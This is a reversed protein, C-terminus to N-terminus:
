PSCWLMDQPLCGSDGEKSTPLPPVECAFLHVMEWCWQQICAQLHLAPWDLKAALKLFATLLEEEHHGRNHLHMFFASVCQSFDEVHSNQLWFHYLMGFILGKTMSPSHASFAPIYLHLNMSKEFTCAEVQGGVITLTLDLFNVKTQPGLSTWQLQWGEYGFSNFDQKLREFRGPCQHKILYVDDIFQTYFLFGHGSGPKCICTEEHEAFYHMTYMCAVSTGMAMSNKQWFSMDDFDFINLSMVLKLGKLIFRTLFSTPLEKWNVTLGARISEIMHDTDICSYM